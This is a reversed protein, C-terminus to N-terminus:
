DELTLNGLDVVRSLSPRTVAEVLTELEGRLKKSM